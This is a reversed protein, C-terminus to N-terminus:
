LLIQRTGPLVAQVRLPTHTVPADAAMHTCHSTHKFLSQQSLVLRIGYLPEIHAWRQELATLFSTYRFFHPWGIEYCEVILLENPKQSDYHCVAREWMGQHLAGFVVYIGDFKHQTGGLVHSVNSDDQDRSCIYNTSHAMVGLRNFDVDTMNCRPHQTLVFPGINAFELNRSRAVYPDRRDWTGRKGSRSDLPRSLLSRVM